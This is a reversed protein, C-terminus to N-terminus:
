KKIFYFHGIGRHLVFFDIKHANGYFEIPFRITGWDGRTRAMLRTEDAFDLLNTYEDGAKDAYQMQFRSGDPVIDFYTDIEYGYYRGVYKDLRNDSLPYQKEANPYSRHGVALADSMHRPKRFYASKYNEREPLAFYERIVANELDIATEVPECDLHTLVIVSLKKKVDLRIISQWGVIDGYQWLIDRDHEDYFFGFGYPGIEGNNLAFSSFLMDFLGEPAGPLHRNMLCNHWKVLDEATTSLGGGGMIDLGQSGDMGLPEFIREKAFLANGGTLREVIHGLIEYCSESYSNFNGPQNEPQEQRFFMEMCDLPSNSMFFKMLYIYRAGSTMSLCHRITIKDAYEKMEPLYIRVSDDLNLRNECALIAVCCAVFQKAISAVDFPTSATVPHYVGDILVSGTCHKLLSKGDLEVSVAYGRGLVPQLHKSVIKELEEQMNKM